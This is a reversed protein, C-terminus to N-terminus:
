GPESCGLFRERPLMAVRERSKERGVDEHPVFNTVKNEAPQIRFIQGM